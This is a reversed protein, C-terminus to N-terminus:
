NLVICYVVFTMSSLLFFFFFFGVRSVSLAVDRGGKYFLEVELFIQGDTISNVNTPIYASVDGFGNYLADSPILHRARTKPSHPIPNPRFHSNHTASSGGLLRRAWEDAVGERPRARFSLLCASLWVLAGMFLASSFRSLFYAGRSGKRWRWPTLHHKSCAMSRGQRMYYIMGKM